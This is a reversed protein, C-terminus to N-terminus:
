HRPELIFDFTVGLTSGGYQPPLPMLRITQVARMAERDYVGVGSSRAMTIQSVAGTKGVVFHISCGIRDKDGFGLQRPRWNRAITSEIQSLYWAFPFNTDTGSVSPGSLTPALDAALEPPSTDASDDAEPSPEPDQKVEPKKEIKEPEPEPKKEPTITPLEKPTLPEPDAVKPQVQPTPDEQPTERPLERSEPRVIRVDITRPPQIVARQVTSGYLAMVVLALLHFGVSWPLGRTM